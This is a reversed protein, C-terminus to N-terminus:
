QFLQKSCRASCQEIESQKNIRAHSRKKFYVLLGVGAVVILIAIAVITLIPFPKSTEIAEDFVIAVGFSSTTEHSTPTEESVTLEIREAANEKSITYNLPKLTGYGDISYAHINTFSSEVQINFQATSNNGFWPHDNYAYDIVEELGYRSGLPFLFAYKGLYAYTQDTTPVPHEYHATISFHRAVPSIKWHLEPLNADFLHFLSRDRYAWDLEASDMKISISTANLPVPYHADLRDYAVIVTIETPGYMLGFGYNQTQYKDGFAYITNMSYAADVKAWLTGNVRSITANVQMEPVSVIPAIQTAPGPNAKAVKVAQVGVLSILLASILTVALATRKM